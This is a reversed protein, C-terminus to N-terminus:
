PALGAIVIEIFRSRMASPMEAGPISTLLMVIDAFTLDPRVAGAAIARELLKVFAATARGMPSDPTATTLEAEADLRGAASKLAKDTAQREAATRFLAALEPGPPAGADIKRLSEEAMAAVQEVSDDVVASVLDEKAPFHRYLTGVAVGALKAIDEMTADAGTTAVLERAAVLIRSRNRQADARM